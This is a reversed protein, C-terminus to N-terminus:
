ADKLIYGAEEIAGREKATAEVIRLFWAQDPPVANGDLGLIMSGNRAVLVGPREWNSFLDRITMASIERIAM